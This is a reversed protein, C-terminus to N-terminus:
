AAVKPKLWITRTYERDTIDSIKEKMPRYGERLMRKIIREKKKDNNVSIEDFLEEVEIPRRRPKKMAIVKSCIKSLRRKSCRM